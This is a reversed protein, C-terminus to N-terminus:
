ARRPLRWLQSVLMGSFMLACGAMGRDTLFEGLMIWGGLAAFVAELSMIVAAHSPKAKKQAIVQLTYAVGVSMIGGFLIPVTAALYAQLTNVEMFLSVAMSLVSCAAYQLFSIKLADGRPSLWGIIHVHCAWFFAGILVLLDGWAITFSSTVSLLFLGATALVAGIWTGAHTGHGLFIGIIPVLIVYLGTIFGANGATTYIMAVQQFSAGTFLVLGAVLGGGLGRLTFVGPAAPLSGGDNLGNRALFPLLVLCGLAFRVGNFGFPGVYDM